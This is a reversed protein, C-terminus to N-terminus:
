AAKRLPTERVRRFGGGETEYVTGDLAKFRLGDRKRGRPVETFREVRSPEHVPRPKVNKSEERGGPPYEQRKPDALDYVAKVAEYNAKRAREKRNRAQIRQYNSPKRKRSVPM